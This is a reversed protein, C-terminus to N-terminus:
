AVPSDASFRALWRQAGILLLVSVAEAVMSFRILGDFPDGMMVGVARGALALGFLAAPIYLLLHLEPRLAAWGATVSSLIFFASLDARITNMGVADGSVGLLEHYSTPDSLGTLGTWGFYVAWLAVVGRIIWHM